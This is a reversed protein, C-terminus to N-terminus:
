LRAGGGGPKLGAEQLCVCGLLSVERLQMELDNLVALSLTLSELLSNSM